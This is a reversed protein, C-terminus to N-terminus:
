SGNECRSGAAGTATLLLLKVGSDKWPFVEGEIVGEWDCVVVCSACFLAELSSRLQTTACAKIANENRCKM